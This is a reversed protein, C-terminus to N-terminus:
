SSYAVKIKKIQLDTIFMDQVGKSCYFLFTIDKGLWVAWLATSIEM